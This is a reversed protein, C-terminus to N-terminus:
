KKGGKGSKAKSGYKKLVAADCKARKKKPQKKCQKLGKALLQARTLPKPKSAEKLALVGGHATADEQHAQAAVAEEARRKAAAVEVAIVEEGIKKAREEILKTIAAEKNKAEQEKAELEKAEGEKVEAEQKEKAQAEVTGTVTETGGTRAYGVRMTQPQRNCNKAYDITIEPGGEPANAFTGSLAATTSVFTYKQGVTLVPCSAAESPKGVVVAIVGALAVPGDSALQSYDVQATTGSGMIRFLAGSDSDFRASSADLGGTPDSGSGVVVTADDTALSGVAGTGEFYIHRLEVPERDSFNLEGGGLLVAGNAIHQGTANPGEITLPGVETSNALFLAPGNSLEVTLPSGASTVEEGLLLGNEGDEGGSRDAISWRQPASLQLPMEIFAGGLGGAGAPAATLGGSGLTLAEGALLYDDSDDLQMSEASLGGVDNLSLYCADTEPESTCESNTLHPFTLTAIAQSTTPPADGEWNAGASWYAASPSDGPSGGAWTFSVNASAVPALALWLGASALVSLAGALRERRGTAFLVLRYM